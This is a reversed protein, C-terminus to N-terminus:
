KNEADLAVEEFHYVTPFPEYFHHLLRKWEQYGNSGRFGETHAELTEWEVLLLYLHTDEMCKHLSHTIYGDMSAIIHSAQKFATEFATTQGDKIHLYASELIM